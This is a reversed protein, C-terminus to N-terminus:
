DYNDVSMTYILTLFSIVLLICSAPYLPTSSSLCLLSLTEYFRVEM